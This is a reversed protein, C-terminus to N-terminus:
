SPALFVTVISFGPTSGSKVYACIEAGAALSITLAISNKYQGSAITISAGAIDVLTGIATRNQLQIVTSGSMTSQCSFALGVISTTSPILYGVFNSANGGIRLYTGSSIGPQAFTVSAITGKSGGSSVIANTEFIWVGNATSNDQLLCEISQTPLITILAGGGNNVISINQTSTNWVEYRRGTPYTTANGLNVIQGATTGTFIYQLVTSNSLTVTTAATAQVTAQHRVGMLELADQVSTSSTPFGNSSNDFPTSKAVQSSFPGAM